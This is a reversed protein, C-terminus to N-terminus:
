RQALGQSLGLGFNSIKQGISKYWTKFVTNFLLAVDKLTPEKKVEVEVVKKPLDPFLSSPPTPPEGAITRTKLEKLIVISEELTLRKRNVLFHIEPHCNGCLLVCKELEVNVEEDSKGRVQNATISFEKLDPDMHHFDYVSYCDPIKSTYGCCNCMNGNSMVWKQKRAYDKQGTLDRNGSGDKEKHEKRKRKNRERCCEKCDKDWTYRVAGTSKRVRTRPYYYCQNGCKKCYVVETPKPPFNLLAEDIQQPQQPLLDLQEM